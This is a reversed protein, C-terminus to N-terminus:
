SVLEKCATSVECSKLMSKSAMDKKHNKSCHLKASKCEQQFFELSNQPSTSASVSAPKLRKDIRGTDCIMHETNIQVTNTQQNAHNKVLNTPCQQFDYSIRRTKIKMPEVIPLAMQTTTPIIHLEYDETANKDILVTQCTNIGNIDATPSNIAVNPTGIMSDTRKLNNMVHNMGNTVYNIHHRQYELANATMSHHRRRELAIVSDKYQSSPILLLQQQTLDHANDNTLPSAEVHALCTIQDTHNNSSLKYHLTSQKVTNDSLQLNIHGRSQKYSIVGNQDGVIETNNRQLMEISKNKSKVSNHDISPSQHYSRKCCLSELYASSQQHSNNKIGLSLRPSSSTNSTSGLSTTMNNSSYKDNLTATLPMSDSHPACFDDKVMAVNDDHQRPRSIDVTSLNNNDLGQKNEILSLEAPAVLTTSLRSESTARSASQDPSDIHLFSINASPMKNFIDPSKKWELLTKQLRRVHLPKKTMGVFDMIELFEEDDADCLQQVDDGGKQSFLILIFIPHTLTQILSHSKLITRLHYKGLQVFTEFYCLLNARELLKYIMYESQNNPFKRSIAQNQDDDMVITPDQRSKSSMTVFNNNTDKVHHIDKNNVVCNNTNSTNSKNRGGDSSCSISTGCSNTAQNTPSKNSNETQKRDVQKIDNHLNGEVFSSSM